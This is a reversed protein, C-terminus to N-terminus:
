ITFNRRSWTQGREFSRMFQEFYIQFMIFCCNGHAWWARSALRLELDLYVRIFLMIMIMLFLVSVFCAVMEHDWLDRSALNIGSGFLSQYIVNDYDHKVELWDNLSIVEVEFSRERLYKSSSSLIIRFWGLAILKM